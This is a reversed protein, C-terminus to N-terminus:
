NNRKIAEYKKNIKEVTEYDETSFLAQKQREDIINLRKQIKTLMRIAPNM